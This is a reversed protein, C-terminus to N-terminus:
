ERAVFGSNAVLNKTTRRQDRLLEKNFEGLDVRFNNREVFEKSLGSYASFKELLAQKETASLRDIRLLAPSYM